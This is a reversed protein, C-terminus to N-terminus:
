FNFIAGLTMQFGGASIDSNDAIRTFSDDKSVGASFSPSAFLYFREVPAYLLKAGVSLCHAM